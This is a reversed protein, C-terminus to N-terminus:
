RDINSSASPTNETSETTLAQDSDDWTWSVNPAEKQPPQDTAHATFTVVTAAFFLATFIAHKM